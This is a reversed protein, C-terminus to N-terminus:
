KNIWTITISPKPLQEGEVVVWGEGGAGGRGGVGCGVGSGCGCVRGWEGMRARFKRQDRKSMLQGTEVWQMLGRAKEENFNGPALSLGELVDGGRGVLSRGM